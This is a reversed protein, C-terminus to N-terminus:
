KDLKKFKRRSARPEKTELTKLCLTLNHNHDKKIFIPMTSIFKVILMAKPVDWTKTNM